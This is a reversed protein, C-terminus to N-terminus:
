SAREIAYSLCLFYMSIESSNRRGYMSILNLLKCKKGNQRKSRRGGFDTFEAESIDWYFDGMIRMCNITLNIFAMKKQLLTATNKADWLFIKLGLRELNLVSFIDTM